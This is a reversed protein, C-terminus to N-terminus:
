LKRKVSSPASTEIAQNLAQNLILAQKSALYEEIAQQATPNLLQWHPHPKLFNLLFNKESWSQDMRMNAWIGIVEDTPFNPKGVNYELDHIIQPYYNHDSLSSYWYWNNDLVVSDELAIDFYNFAGIVAWQKKPDHWQCVVFTEDDYETRAKKLATQYRQVFVEYQDFPVVWFECSTQEWEWVSFDGLKEAIEDNDLDVFSILSAQDPARFQEYVDYPFSQIPFIM